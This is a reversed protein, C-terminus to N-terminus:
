ATSGAVILGKAAELGKSCLATPRHPATFTLPGDRFYRWGCGGWLAPHPFQLHRSPEMKFLILRTTLGPPPQILRRSKMLIIAPETAAHGSGARGGWPPARGRR